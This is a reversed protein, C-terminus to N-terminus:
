PLTVKFSCHLISRHDVMPYQRLAVYTESHHKFSFAEDTIRGEPSIQSNLYCFKEVEGFEQELPVLTPKPDTRGQLLMGYKWPAFRAGFM